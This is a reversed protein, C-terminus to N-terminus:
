NSALFDPDIVPGGPDTGAPVAPSWDVRTKGLITGTAFALDIQAIEYDTLAAIEASQAQALRTAADLVDTSTRRGVEFQRQEAELTRGAAISSLRAALIRQWGSEITDIADLVEQEISQERSEKSSLRQLRQLIARRVRSRAADNGIPVEARLGVLWDDFEADRTVGLSENISSGLGNLRYTYDLTFLPLAQNREFDITSEDITLQLELQLLEMRNALAADVYADPDVDYRVPDPETSPILVIDTRQELGDVHILRKLERQRTLVLNENVIIDELRSAVGDEARIVEVEPLDGADVRRKARDLQAVALEYQSQAVELSKRAAYLRWYLRDAAALQRIIEQKTRSESVGENLAAVRIGHTSSRHGAGRLLPQSISIAADSTYAPNLTSFINNTATRNFPFDVTVSGGTRLPVTVGLDVDLTDVKSGALTSSTPTKFSNRNLNAFFVADFAAEAETVGQNAITPDVLAVQIDLNNSITWARIQELSIDLTELGDFPSKRAASLQSDAVDERTEPLTEGEVASGELTIADISRLREAPPRDGYDSRSTAFPNQACGALAAAAIACAAAPAALAPRNNM